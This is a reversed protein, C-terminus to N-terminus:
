QESSLGAVNAGYGDSAKHLHKSSEFGSGAGGAGGPGFTNHSPRQFRLLPSRGM